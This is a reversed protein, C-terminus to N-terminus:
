NLMNNYEQSLTACHPDSEDLEIEIEKLRKNLENEHARLQKAKFSAYSITTGRIKCKIMDWLLSKNALNQYSATTDIIVQNIMDVYQKDKLLSGNFKWFGRGREVSDILKFSISIISHDSRISPSISAKSLDYIMNSSILFYDLRSHAQGSRTMGRWTYRKSDPNLIRWIDLLNNTEMLEVLDETYKDNSEKALGKKDLKANLYTNM